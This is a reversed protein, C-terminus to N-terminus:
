ERNGVRRKMKRQKRAEGPSVPTPSPPVLPAARAPNETYCMTTKFTKHEYKGSVVGVEEKIMLMIYPAYPLLRKCDKAALRIEELLFDIIDFPKRSVIHDLVKFNTDYINSSDSDRPIITKRVMRNTLDSVPTFGSISKIDKDTLNSGTYHRKKDDCSLNEVAHIKPLEKSNDVGLIRGWDSKFKTCKKEGSMWTVCTRDESIYVTAFFQRIMEPDWDCQIEMLRKLGISHCSTRVTKGVEDKFKMWNIWHQMAFGKNCYLRKYLDQQEITWFHRDNCSQSKLYVNTGRLANLAKNLPVLGQVDTPIQSSKQIAPVRDSVTPAVSAAEPFVSTPVAPEIFSDFQVPSHVQVMALVDIPIQVLKQIVPVGDSVTPITAAAEPFLSTPETLEMGENHESWSESHDGPQVQSSQVALSMDDNLSFPTRHADLACRATQDRTGDNLCRARKPFNSLSEENGHEQNIAGQLTEDYSAKFFRERKKSDNVVSRWISRGMEFTKGNGLIWLCHRARTLAVNARKRDDLFGIDGNRNCRVMSILVIDREDGQSADFTNVVVHLFRDQKFKSLRGGLVNVQAKYPSLSVSM